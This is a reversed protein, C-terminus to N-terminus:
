ISTKQIVEAETFRPLSHEGPTGTHLPYTESVAEAEMSSESLEASAKEAQRPGFRFGWLGSSLNVILSAVNTGLNLWLVGRTTSMNFGVAFAVQVLLTVVIGTSVNWWYVFRRASHICWLVGSLTSVAGGAIVLLVERKLDRYQPGLVWLFLRPAVWALLTLAVCIALALATVALYNKLLKSRSLKAFYPEVLMPNMQAILTFIAALRSLAGVSAVAGTHGFFTILFVSIQGQMAYFIAQPVNPLALRVIAKQREPSRTGEHGLKKRSWYFYFLGTFTIGVVNFAIALFGNLRHLGWFVLLLGLTGLSQIMQGKYWLSRERILVLVTGYAATMRMFWTAVLLTVIMTGVTRFDWGRNRVLLPYVLVTGLAVFGYLWHALKRLSAVYDAILQRDDVRDGILPILSGSFNVDMLVVLTGYVGFVVVFKAYESTPLLRVCLLGYILNGILTVGQAMFFQALVRAKQVYATMSARGARERRVCRNACARSAAAM